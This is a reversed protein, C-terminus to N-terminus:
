WDNIVQADKRDFLSTVIIQRANIRVDHAPLNRVIGPQWIFVQARNNHRRSYSLMMGGFGHLDCVADFHWCASLFGVGARRAEWVIFVM